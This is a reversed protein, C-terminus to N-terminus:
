SLIFIRGFKASVVISNYIITLYTKVWIKIWIADYLTIFLDDYTEIFIVNYKLVCTTNGIIMFIADHKCPRIFIEPCTTICVVCFIIGYMVAIMIEYITEVLIWFGILHNMHYMVMCQNSRIHEYRQIIWCTYVLSQVVSLM